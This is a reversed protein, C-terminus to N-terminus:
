PTVLWSWVSSVNVAGAFVFKGNPHATPDWPRFSTSYFAGPILSLTGTTADVAVTEMGILGTGGNVNCFLLTGDPSIAPRGVAGKLGTLTQVTTVAGSTADVQARVLTGGVSGPIYLESRTPSATVGGGLTGSLFPSGALPALQGTAQDVKFGSVSGGGTVYVFEGLPAIAIPSSTTAGPAGPAQTLAGTVPDIAFSTLTNSGFHSVFLFKGTPDVAVGLSNGGGTAFPSGPVATLAGSTPDVRFAYVKGPNAQVPAYLFPLTPHGVMFYMGAGAPFPSGALPTLVGTTSDIAYGDVSASQEHGVYLFKGTSDVGTATPVVGTTAFPSGTVNVLTGRARTVEFFSSSASTLGPSDAGLQHNTGVTGVSLDSFTAVGNVANVTRTGNLVGDSLLSMAVTASSSTVTVGNADQIAVQLAPSLTENVRVTAPPQVLFGLKAPPGVNPLVAFPSSTVSGRTTATATLTFGSGLATPAVQFTAVGNVAAVKLTGSLAGGSSIALTVPDNAGSDLVGAETLVAVQVAPAFAVGVVANTPPTLFALSGPPFLTIVVNAPVGPAIEALATGFGVLRGSAGLADVRVLQVGVPIGRVAVTQASSGQEGSSVSVRTQGVVDVGTGPNLVRILLTDFPGSTRASTSDSRISVTLSGTAGPAAAAGSPSQGGGGGGCGSLLLTTLFLLVLGFRM